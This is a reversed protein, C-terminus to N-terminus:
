DFPNVVPVDIDICCIEMSTSQTRRHKVMNEGWRVVHFKCYLLTIEVLFRQNYLNQSSDMCEPQNMTSLSGEQSSLYVRCLCKQVHSEKQCPPIHERSPVEDIWDCSAECTIRSLTMVSARTPFSCNYVELHCEVLTEHAKTDFTIHGDAVCGAIAM